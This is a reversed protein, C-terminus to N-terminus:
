IKKKHGNKMVLKKPYICMEETESNGLVIYPDIDMEKSELSAIDIFGLRDVNDDNINLKFNIKYSLIYRSNVYLMIFRVLTYLRKLKWIWLKLRIKNIINM